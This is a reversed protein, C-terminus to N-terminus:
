LEHSDADEKNSSGCPVADKLLRKLLEKLEMLKEPTKVALDNKEGIDNALNYLQYQNTASKQKKTKSTHILKWDGARVAAQDSSTGSLLLADHPSKAGDVLVPWIDKGDLPLKQQLSGGALKVLTPFWDIIHVPENIVKGAPIKGPWTAFACVRVGGEYITGKGARLPGNDTVTGPSPGGNDSSFVILTNDLIKQEELAAVVQGVAEDMAALMGAYIKRKGTLNGYPKLYSEPVQLPGHVANFPLYLFFPKSADRRRIFRCAEKAILHTSYGEDECPKDNRHWDLRGERMHTFYDISGFWMGYQQDFGRKTPLYEPKFEGLHWKGSIATQYGVEGLAQALTREVLPLGWAARPRVVTYVGTHSVYRGTMLSARTPSCVPQVYFSSLVAGARALRNLNPTQIEKGGSFGPDAYGLDDAIIHVINPKGGAAFLPACLLLTSLLAPITKMSNEAIQKNIRIRM